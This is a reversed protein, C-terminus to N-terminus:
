GFLSFGEPITDPPSELLRVLESLHETFHPVFKKGYSIAKCYTDTEKALFGLSEACINIIQDSNVLKSATLLAEAEAM